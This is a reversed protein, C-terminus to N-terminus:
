VIDDESLEGGLSVHPDDCVEEDSLEASEVKRKNGVGLKTAKAAKDAAVINAKEEPTVLCVLYEAVLDQVAELLAEHSRWKTKIKQLM